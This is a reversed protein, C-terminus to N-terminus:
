KSVILWNSGNCFATMGGGQSVIFSIGGPTVFKQTGSANLNTFTMVNGTNNFITLMQGSVGGAVGNFTITASGNFAVISKSIVPFANQTSIGTVTSDNFFGM